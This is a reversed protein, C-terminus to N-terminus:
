PAAGGRPPLVLELEWGAAGRPLGVATGPDFRIRELEAGGVLAATLRALHPLHGVLMLPAAALEIEAGLQRLAHVVSALAAEHILHARQMELVDPHRRRLLRNLHADQQEQLYQQYADKKYVVLVHVARTM